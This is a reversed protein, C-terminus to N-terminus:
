ITSSNSLFGLPGLFSRLMQDSMLHEAKRRHLRFRTVAIPALVAMRVLPYATYTAVSRSPSFTV